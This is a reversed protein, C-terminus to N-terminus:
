LSGFREKLREMWERDDLSGTGLDKRHAKIFEVLDPPMMRVFEEGWDALATAPRCRRAM